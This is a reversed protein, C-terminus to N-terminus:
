QGGGIARQVALVSEVVRQARDLLQGAETGGTLERAVTLAAGAAELLAAIGEPQPDGPNWALLKGAAVEEASFAKSLATVFALHRQPTLAPLTKKAYLGREYDQAAALAQHTTQLTLTARQKAPLSACAGVLALAFMGAALWVAARTVLIQQRVTM